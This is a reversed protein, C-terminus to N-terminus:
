QWIEGIDSDEQDVNEDKECSHTDVLVIAGNIINAPVILLWLILSM